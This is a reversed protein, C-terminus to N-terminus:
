IEAVTVRTRIRDKKILAPWYAVINQPKPRGGAFGTVGPPGNTVLPAIEKGFRAVREKDEDKVAIRLVVENIRDPMPSIRGHCANVGLFESNTEEFTIGANHLRAMIIESCKQAKALADPGSITLTGSAKYGNHYSISVKYSDTAPSGKIGSVQVRDKGTEELGITTFDVTVDPSFYNRPDGMEYVIQESVTDVTVM